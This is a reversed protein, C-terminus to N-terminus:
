LSHLMTELSKSVGKEPEIARVHYVGNKVYHIHEFAFALSAPIKRSVFDIDWGTEERVISSVRLLWNTPTVKKENAKENAKKSATPPPM